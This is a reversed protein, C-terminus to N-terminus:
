RVDFNAVAVPEGEARLIVIYTGPQLNEPIFFYRAGERMFQSQHWITRGSVAEDVWITGVQQGWMSHKPVDVVIAPQESAAIVQMQPAKPDRMNASRTAYVKVSKCGSLVMLAM